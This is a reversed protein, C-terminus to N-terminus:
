GCLTEVTTVYLVTVTTVSLISPAAFSTRVMEWADVWGDMGAGIKEM